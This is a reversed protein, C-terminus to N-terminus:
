GLKKRYAAVVTHGRLHDFNISNLRAMFGALRGVSTGKLSYDLLRQRMGLFKRLRSEWIVRSAWVRHYSAIPEYEVAIVELDFQTAVWRLTRESWHTVHHPPMDLIHNLAKGAFGDHAPVALILCGGPNLCRLCGLIFGTPDSVHELVQFSVVADYTNGSRSHSEVSEKVLRIGARGASRIARDNFELGTYRDAGVVSAFAAKGAGVELVRGKSPLHKLAIAYEHKDAMYYWDFSQLREYLPEGATEMPDFFGLGCTGCVCYSMESSALAEEVGFTHLYRANLEAVDIVERVAVDQGGCLVCATAHQNECQSM